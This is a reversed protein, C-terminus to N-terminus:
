CRVVTSLFLHGEETFLEYFVLPRGWRSYKADAALGGGSSSLEDISNRRMFKVDIDTNGRVRHFVVPLEVRASRSRHALLAIQALRNDQLHQSFLSRCEQVTMTDRLLSLQVSAALQAQVSQLGRSLNIASSVLRQCRQELKNAQLMSTINKAIQTQIRSDKVLDLAVSPPLAPLLRDPLVLVSCLLGSQHAMAEDFRILSRLVSGHWGVRLQKDIATCLLEILETYGSLVSLFAKAETEPDTTPVPRRLADTCARVATLENKLPKDKPWGHAYNLICADTSTRAELVQTTVVMAEHGASRTASAIWMASKGREVQLLHVFEILLGASPEAYGLPFTWKKGPLSFLKDQLRSGSLTM